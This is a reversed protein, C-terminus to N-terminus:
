RGVRTWAAQAPVMPNGRDPSSRRRGSGWCAAVSASGSTWWSVGLTLLIANLQPDAVRTVEQERLMPMLSLEDEITIVEM